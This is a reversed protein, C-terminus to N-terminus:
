TKDFGQAPQAQFDDSAPAAMMEKAARITSAGNNCDM